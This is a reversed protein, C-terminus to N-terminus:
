WSTRLHSLRLRFSDTFGLYVRPQFALLLWVAYKGDRSYTTGDDAILKGNNLVARTNEFTVVATERHGAHPLPIAAKARSSSSNAVDEFTKRKKAPPMDPHSEGPSAVFNSSSKTRDISNSDKAGVAASKPLASRDSKRKKKEHTSDTSSDNYSREPTNTSSAPKAVAGGPNTTLRLTTPLRAIESPARSKSGSEHSASRRLREAKTTTLDLDMDQDEAYNPRSAHPRNRSRTGYPAATSSADDKTSDHHSSTSPAKSMPQSTARSSNQDTLTDNLPPLLQSDVRSGSNIEPRQSHHESPHDGNAPDPVRDGVATGAAVDAM